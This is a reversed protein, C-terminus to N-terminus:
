NIVGLISDLAQTLELMMKKIREYNTLESLEYKELSKLFNKKKLHAPGTSRIIQVMRFKDSIYSITNMQAGKQKLFEGFLEINNRIEGVPDIKRGTERKLFSVNLADTTIKALALSQNDFESWDETLPLHLTDWRYKDGEDLEIFLLEKYKDLFSRQILEYRKRFLTVPNESESVELLFDRRFRKESMPGMYVVNFSRWHKQEDYPIYGLDGLYVHVLDKEQRVFELGWKTLCSLGWEGVSYRTSDHYYKSLVEAKFYVHSLYLPANRDTFFNSLEEENCTAYEIEGDANRGIIFKEFQRNDEGIIAYRHRPDPKPNPLVVDKGLLRSHSVYRELHFGEKRLSIDICRSTDSIKTFVEDDKLKSIDQESFRVHDHYRVLFSKNACLFDKLHHADALLVQNRESEYELKAVNVIDGNETVRKFQKEKASYFARHFLLFSQVFEFKNPVFGHYSRYLVFPQLFLGDVEELRAPFYVLEDDDSIEFYPFGFDGVGGRRIIEWDPTKLITKMSEENNLVLVSYTFYNCGGIKQDRAVVIWDMKMHEKKELWDEFRLFSTKDRERM